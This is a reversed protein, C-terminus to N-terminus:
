TIMHDLVGFENTPVFRIYEDALGSPDARNVPNNSAYPYPNLKDEAPDPSRHRGTEASMDRHTLSIISEPGANPDQRYALFEGQYTNANPTSGTSSTPKGWADFRYEDTVTGTEDTLESTNHIGDFHYFRAEDERNQSVLHAYPLPVYTGAPDFTYQYSSIVEDSEDLNTVRTLQGAPDYIMTARTGNALERLVEQGANDYSYTTVEEQPNILVRLRGAPDYLTTFIGGDPDAMMRRQGLLDYNYLIANDEPDTTTQSDTV